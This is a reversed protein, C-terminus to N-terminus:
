DISVGGTWDAIAENGTAIGFLAGPVAGRFADGPKQKGRTKVCFDFDSQPNM